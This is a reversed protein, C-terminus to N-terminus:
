LIQNINRKLFNFSRVREKFLIKNSESFDCFFDDNFNFSEKFRSSLHFLDLLDLIRNNDSTTSDGNKKFFSYFPINFNIAFATGHYSDTLICSSKKLFFLFERPGVNSIIYKKYNDIIVQSMSIIKLDLSHKKAIQLSKKVIETKNGLIYCLVFPKTKKNETIFMWEEHSMLLTPDLVRTIELNTTKHLLSCGSEERCSISHFQPLYLKFLEKIETDINKVGVSPAYSIKKKKEKVFDLLFHTFYKKECCSPNWVQDSGVIFLDYNKEINNLNKVIPSEIIYQNHFEDFLTNNTKYIYDRFITSYLNHNIIARIYKYFKIKFEHFLNINNKTYTWFNEVFSEPAIPYKWGFDIYESQFGMKRLVHQLAYAQLCTGYNYWFHYSLLGIKKM